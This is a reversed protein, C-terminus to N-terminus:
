IHEYRYGWGELKSDMSGQCPISGTSQASHDVRNTGHHLPPYIPVGNLAVGLAEGATLKRVSKSWLPVAPVVLKWNRECLRKQHGDAGWSVEHNPVGSGALLAMTRNKIMRASFCSRLTLYPPEQPVDSSVAPFVCPTDVPGRFSMSLRHTHEPHKAAVLTFYAAGLFGCLVVHIARRRWM